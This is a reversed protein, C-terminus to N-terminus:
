LEYRVGLDVTLGYYQSGTLLNKSVQSTEDRRENVNNMNLYVSLGDLPLKQKLAIDIRFYDETESDVETRTGVYSVVGGQFLFSVRGSFGAYEYGLSANVVDAPQDILRGSRTSDILGTVVGITNKVAYIRPYLTESWIHSYNLNMVLGNFPSPLYWFRTQWDFELGKIKANYRNNVWTQVQGGTVAGTFNAATKFGELAYRDNV